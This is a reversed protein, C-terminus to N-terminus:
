KHCYFHNPFSGPIVISAHAVCISIVTHLSAWTQTCPFCISCHQYGQQLINRFVTLSETTNEYSIAIIWSPISSPLMISACRCCTLQGSGLLLWCMSMYEWGKRGPWHHCHCLHLKVSIAKTMAQSCPWFLTTNRINNVNYGLEQNTNNITYEVQANLDIALMDNVSCKYPLYM